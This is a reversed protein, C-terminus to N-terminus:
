SHPTDGQRPPYAALDGLRISKVVPRHTGPSFSEIPKNLANALERMVLPICTRGQCPGMGLRTFRKIEDVTNCGQAIYEHIEAKSIDSCRCIVGNSIDDTIHPTEDAQRTLNQLEAHKPIAINRIKKIHAISDEFTLAKNVAISVIPTKSAPLTVRVVDAKGVIAGERDLAYVWQGEAPLPRFEYPLRILAQSESWNMDVTMIALGPCKMICIGCGNCKGNDIKPIDNIDAFPLIAQQPCSTACPDCPIPQFCEIIAVPGQQLREADPFVADVQADTPVGTKELM